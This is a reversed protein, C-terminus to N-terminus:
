NMPNAKKKKPAPGMPNAKKGNSTTGSTQKEEKLYYKNFFEPAYQEAYANLVGEQKSTSSTADEVNTIFKRVGPDAPANAVFEEWNDYGAKAAVETKFASYNAGPKWKSKGSGSGSGTVGNKQDEYKRNSLNIRSWGQAIKAADNKEKVEQQHEKFGHSWEDNAQLRELKERNLQQTAAQNAATLDAKYYQLDRNATTNDIRQQQLKNPLYNPDNKLYLENLADRQDDINKRIQQMRAVRLKRAGEISEDILPSAYTQRQNEAGHATGILNAFSSFADGLAVIRRRADERRAMEADLELLQDREGEIEALRQQQPAFVDDWNGKTAPGQASAAEQEAPVSGSPFLGESMARQAAREGVQGTDEGYLGNQMAAAKAKAGVATNEAVPEQVPAQAVQPYLGAETGPVPAVDPYLGQEMARQQVAEGVAGTQGGFLPGNALAADLEARRAAYASDFAPSVSQAPLKTYSTAAVPEVFEESMAPASEEKKESAKPHDEKEEKEVTPVSYSGLDPKEVAGYIRRALAADPEVAQVLPQRQIEEKAQEVRLRELAGKITPIKRKEEDTM